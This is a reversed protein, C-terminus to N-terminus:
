GFLDKLAAKMEAREAAASDVDPPPASRRAPSVAEEAAEVKPARPKQAARPAASVKQEERAIAKQATAAVRSTVRDRFADVHKGAASTDPMAEMWFGAEPSGKIDTQRILKGRWSPGTVLVVDGVPSGEWVYLRVRSGEMQGTLINPSRGHGLAALCRIVYNRQSSEGIDVDNLNAAIADFVETKSASTLNAPLKIPNPTM